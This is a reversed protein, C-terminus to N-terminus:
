QLDYEDEPLLPVKKSFVIKLISTLLGPCHIVVPSDPTLWGHLAVWKPTPPRYMGPDMDHALARLGKNLEFDLKSPDAVGGWTNTKEDWISGYYDSTAKQSLTCVATLEETTWQQLPNLYLARLCQVRLGAFNTVKDPIKPDASMSSM